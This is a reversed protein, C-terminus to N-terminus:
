NAQKAGVRSEFWREANRGGTPEQVCRAFGGSALTSLARNIEGASTHRKFLEFIDTRTLGREALHLAELIVDATPDGLSTGFIFRASDECYCWVALAAELHPLCVMPSCDLVAYVLALRLVQAEARSVVAGLLGPKGTSLVDYVEHWRERAEDDRKLCGVSQAFEKAQKFGEVIPAFDELDAMGGDPLSKSRRVCLWLFRNAFGNGCETQTLSRLLEDTTIHGLVSIHAGTARTPSTKNLVRLDGTDWAERLVASLTNEQRRASQLVRAFEPEVVMLRKDSEGPDQGAPDRVAYILGEGTSLGSAINWTQDIQRVIERVRGFSTGKRAKSTAGVLVANLNCYHRDAEVVYHATRGVVNGFSVLTQLLIAAPDAETHPELLNVLQGAVGHYAAPALPGPWTRLDCAGEDQSLLKLSNM